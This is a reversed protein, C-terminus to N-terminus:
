LAKSHETTIETLPLGRLQVSLGLFLNLCRPKLSGLVTILQCLTKILRTPTIPVQRTPMLALSRALPMIRSFPAQLTTAPLLDNLEQLGLQFVM